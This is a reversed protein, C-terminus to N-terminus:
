GSVLRAERVRFPSGPGYIRQAGACPGKPTVNVLWAFQSGRVHAEVPSAAGAAILSLRAANAESTIEIAAISGDTYIQRLTMSERRVAARRDIVRTEGVTGCGGSTM